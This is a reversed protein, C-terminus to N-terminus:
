KKEKRYEWPPIPYDMSWLGMRQSRATEESSALDVDGSYKKFHWALGAKIMEKGLENGNPLFSRAILRGYKDKSVCEVRIEKEQCLKGLYNKSVKYFDMGKEPADVGYMRIRTLKGNLLIDYTDGDIIKVIKGTNSHTNRDNCQYASFAITVFVILFQPYHKLM